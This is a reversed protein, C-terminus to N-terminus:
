STRSTGCNWCEDFVANVEKKCEPCIWPEGPLEKYEAVVKMAREFQSEDLIRLFIAGEEDGPLAGRIENPIAEANLLGSLTMIDTEDYSEFVVKM